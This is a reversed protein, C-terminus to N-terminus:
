IGLAGAAREMDESRLYLLYGYRGGGASLGTSSFVSIGEQYLKEHVEVLAGVSDDGQVLIAPYPGDLLLGARKGEALFRSDDDPFLTLQTTTPGVPVATFAMLNLGLEALRTLLRYGEGPEDRVRTYFYSVRRIEHAM